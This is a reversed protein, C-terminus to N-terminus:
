LKIATLAYYRYKFFGLNSYNKVSFVATEPTYFQMGEVASNNFSIENKKGQDVGREIEEFHVVQNNKVFIMQGAMLKESKPVDFPFLKDNRLQSDLLAREEFYYLSDWEFNTLSSLKIECDVEICNNEIYLIIERQILSSEKKFIITLILVIIILFIPITSLPTNKLKM